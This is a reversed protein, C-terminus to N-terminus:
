HGSLHKFLGYMYEDEVRGLHDSNFYLIESLLPVTFCCFVLHLFAPIISVITTSSAMCWVFVHYFVLFSATGKKSSLDVILILLFLPSSSTFSVFPDYLTSIINVSLM